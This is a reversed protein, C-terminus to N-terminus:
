KGKQTSKARGVTRGKSLPVKIGKGINFAEVEEELDETIDNIITRKSNNSTMNVFKPQSLKSNVLSVSSMQGTLHLSPLEDYQKVQMLPFELTATKM